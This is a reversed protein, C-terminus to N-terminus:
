TKKSLLLYIWGWNTPSSVPESLWTVRWLRIVLVPCWPLNLGPRPSEMTLVSKGVLVTHLQLDEACGGGGRGVQDSVVPFQCVPVLLFDSTGRFAPVVCLRFVMCCSLAVGDAVKYGVGWVMSVPATLSGLPWTVQFIHFTRRGLNVRRWLCSSGM